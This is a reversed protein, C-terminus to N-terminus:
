GVSVQAADEVAKPTRFRWRYPLSGACHTGICLNGRCGGHHRVLSRLRLKDHNRVQTQAERQLPQQLLPQEEEASPEAWIAGVSQPFLTPFVKRCFSSKPNLLFVALLISFFCIPFLSDLNRGSVSMLVNNMVYLWTCRQPLLQSFNFFFFRTQLLSFPKRIQNLLTHYQSTLQELFCRCFGETLLVM